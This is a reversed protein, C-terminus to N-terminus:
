ATRREDRGGLEGISVGYLDALKWATEYGMGGVGNEYNAITNVNVGVAKAVEEQTMRHKARLGRLNDALVSKSFAM